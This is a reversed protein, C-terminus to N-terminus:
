TGYTTGTSRVAGATVDYLRPVLKSITTKGAGSPGVLAVEDRSPRSRCATCCSSPRRSLDGSGERALGAVVEDAAPYAFCVDDFEVRGRARRPRDRGPTRHDADQPRAGRLRARVVGDGEDRGGPRQILGTLPEYLRTLGAAGFVGRAPRPRSRSRELPWVDRRSGTPSAGQALAAVLTLRSSSSGGTCRSHHYRHRAGARRPGRFSAAAGRRSARVPHVALAGSWTSGSRRRVHEDVREARLKERTLAQAAQPRVVAGAARVVSAVPDAVSLTVQWLCRSCSPCATSSSCRDVNAVVGGVAHVHVGAARRHRRQEPPERRAGTQTRTFFALSM